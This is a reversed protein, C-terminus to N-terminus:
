LQFNDMAATDHAFLGGRVEFGANDLRRTVDGLMEDSRRALAEPLRLGRPGVEAITRGVWFRSEAWLHDGLGATVIIRSTLFPVGTTAQGNERQIARSVRVANVKHTRLETMMGDLSDFMLKM